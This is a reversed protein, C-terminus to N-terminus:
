EDDDDSDFGVDDDEEEEKKEEKKAEEGGAGPAAAVKFADPNALYAEFPEAVELKYSTAISFAIIKRLANSMLHPISAMCPYSLGLALCSAQILGGAFKRMIDDESLDLVKADYCSGGEFVYLVKIGFSFPMMKLKSLLGAASASVKEGMTCMKVRSIIEIAGRNIKTSINLAQFFATQGPDLGTPGPEVFVDCPAVQGTKAPAPDQKELVKDRLEILDGNTFIFGINGRIKELLSALGPDAKQERRLIKRIVTNKGMLIQAKGRLQHRTDSMQKSGVNDVGIVLMKKYNAFCDLLTKEYKVKRPHIAKQPASM